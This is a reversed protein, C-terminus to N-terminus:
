RSSLRLRPPSRQLVLSSSLPPQLLSPHWLCSRQFWLLFRSLPYSFQTWLHHWSSQNWPLSLPPILPPFSALHHSIRLSCSLHFRPRLYPPLRPPHSQLPFQLSFFGSPSFDSSLLFSSFSSSPM